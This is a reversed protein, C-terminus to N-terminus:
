VFNDQSILSQGCSDVLPTGSVSTLPNGDVDFLVVSSVFKKNGVKREPAASPDFDEDDPRNGFMDFINCDDFDVIPIGEADSNILFNGKVDKLPRGSDDTLPFGYFDFLRIPRGYSDVLCYNDEPPEEEFDSCLSELSEEKIMPLNYKTKSSRKLVKEKQTCKEQNNIKEKIEIDDRFEKNVRPTVTEEEKNEDDPNIMATPTYLNSKCLKLGPFTKEQAIKVTDTLKKNSQLLLLSQKELTKFQTTGFANGFQSEEVSNQMLMMLCSENANQLFLTKGLQTITNSFLFKNTTFDGEGNLVKSPNKTVKDYPKFFMQQNSDKFSIINESDIHGATKLRSMKIKNNQNCIPEWSAFKLNLKVMKMIFKREECSVNGEVCNMDSNEVSFTNNAANKKYKKDTYNLHASKILSPKTIDNSTSKGFNTKPTTKNSKNTDFIRHVVMIRNGMEEESDADNESLDNRCNVHQSEGSFSICSKCSYFSCDSSASDTPFNPKDLILQLATKKSKLKVNSTCPCKTDLSSSICKRPNLELTIHSCRCDSKDCSEQGSLKSDVHEEIDLVIRYKFAKYRLKESM